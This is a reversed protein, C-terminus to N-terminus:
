PVLVAAGTFRGFKLDHLARDAEDLAYKNATVHLPHEAAYDMFERADEITFATVSRIQREWFLHRHYNLMPIDPLYITPTVLIGGPVLADLAPIMLAGVPPFLMASDLQEPPPEDVGQASSAGLEIALERADARRTMVHVRAGRALALQAAIHASGGFGYIGLVGGEPLDALNFARYASVGACLLPAAELDSYQTPLQVAFDEPVTAFEAFGGDSDWGTYESQQCLNEAGSVCYRCVRCTRRLWSIGIRAGIPTSTRSGRDVVEGVVQHGPIVHRRHMPLDGMTVHLDTRCVGCALVQVLLEDDAPQPIPASGSAVPESDLPGPETVRWARM